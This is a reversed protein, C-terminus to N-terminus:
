SGAADDPQQWDKLVLERLQTLVSGLERLSDPDRWSWSELARELLTSWLAEIGSVHEARGMSALYPALDIVKTRAESPSRYTLQPKM